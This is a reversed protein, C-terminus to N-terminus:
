KQYTDPVFKLTTIKNQAVRKAQKGHMTYHESYIYNAENVFSLLITEDKQRIIIYSHKNM